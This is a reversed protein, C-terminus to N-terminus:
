ALTKVMTVARGQEEVVVFGMRQYLRFAPNEPWVSLSLATHEDQVADILRELLATGIRQGRYAPQLAITLEPTDEGVYGYGKNKATFVRAWAAGIPQGTGEEIAVFGVDGPRGYHEAYKRLAPQQVVHRPPREGGEPIFIAQYLM